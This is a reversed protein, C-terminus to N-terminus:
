AYKQSGTMPEKANVKNLATDPQPTAGQKTAAVAQDIDTNSIEAEEPSTEEGQKAQYPQIEGNQLRKFYAAFLSVIMKAVKEYEDLPFKLDDPAAKTKAFIAKDSMDPGPTILWHPESEEGSQFVPNVKISKRDFRVICGHDTIKTELKSNLKRIELCVLASLKDQRRSLDGKLKTVLSEAEKLQSINTMIDRIEDPDTDNEIAESLLTEFHDKRM